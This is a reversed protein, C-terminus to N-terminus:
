GREREKAEILWYNLFWIAKELDHVESTTKKGARAIYKTANGLCYGRLGESGLWSSMVKIHEHPDKKGGYHQPHDVAEPKKKM